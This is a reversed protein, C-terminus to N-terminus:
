GAVQGPQPKKGGAFRRDDLAGAVSVDVPDPAHARDRAFAREDDLLGAGRELFEGLIADRGMPDHALGAPVLAHRGEIAVGDARAHEVEIRQARREHELIEARRLRELRQERAAPIRGACRRREAGEQRPDVSSRAIGRERAAELVLLHAAEVALM